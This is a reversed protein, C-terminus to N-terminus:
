GAIDALAARDCRVLNHSLTTLVGSRRFESITRSTTELTVGLIAGLDERSFLRVPQDPADESLWLLLRALRQRAHGTALETLFDDAVSLAEYWKEMLRQHLRPTETQLRTVVSTPIRCLEVPQLAMAAHPYTPRVLAEIGAVGGARVLRVIRQGGDPQIHVLKVLGARVTFVAEAPDDLGYLSAGAPISREEIPLHIHAFDEAELDAFLALRRIGCSQCAVLGKWAAAIRNPQM